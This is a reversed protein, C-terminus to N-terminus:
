HAGNGNVGNVVKSNVGNSNVGDLGNVYDLGNRGNSGANADTLRRILRAPVGGVLCNPEVDKAVVAGAAITCGRGITVGPLVTVESAVTL